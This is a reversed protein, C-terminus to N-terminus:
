CLGPLADGIQMGRSPHICVLNDFVCTNLSWEDRRCQWMQQNNHELCTWHRRFQELCSKNIDEIRYEPHAEIIVRSIECGLKVPVAIGIEVM